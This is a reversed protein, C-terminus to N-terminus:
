GFWIVCADFPLADVAFFDLLAIRGRIYSTSQGPELLFGATASAVGSSFRLAGQARASNQIVFGRAGVPAVLSGTATVNSEGLVAEGATLLEGLSNVAIERHDSTATSFGLAFAATKLTTGSTNVIKQNNGTVSSTSVFSTGNSIQVSLPTAAAEHRTALVARPTNADAAGTNYSM